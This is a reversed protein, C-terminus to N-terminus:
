YDVGDEQVAEYLRELWKSRTKTDAPAEIVFPIVAELTWYVANGLTESLFGAFEAPSMEGSAEAFEDFKGTKARVHGNVPVNFPPDTFVM